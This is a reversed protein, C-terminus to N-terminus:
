WWLNPHGVWSEGKDCFKGAWGTHCICQWPQHCTGHLCGPMRVCEECYEGEWGPDCRCSSLAHCCSLVWAPAASFSAAQWAPNGCIHCHQSVRGFGEM